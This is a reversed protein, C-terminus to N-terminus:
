RDAAAPPPGAPARDPQNALGIGRALARAMGFGHKTDPLLYQGETWENWCGITVVPPVGPRQNLYAMAARTLAEFAAPTEDVVIATGPWRQRSPTEGRPTQICRPTNDWGPNISPFCPLSTSADAEPWVRTVVDAAVTGYDLLEEDDPRRDAAMALSTYLGCSDFGLDAARPFADYSAHSAHFHIGPHGLKRAFARLEDLLTRTGDEDFTRLLRPLDWIVLVPRDDLRWYRPDHFYRAICYTLSRWIEAPTDPSAYLWERAGRGVTGFMAQRDDFPPLGTTPYWTFWPHNVWMVAFRVRERGSARLFGDELAEHLAPEGGYWYWDHIFVDVGSAVALDVYKEWTVPDREDLDGLMPTRPQHHGEFWPRTGRMLVYETWGPGYVRDNLASRHYHPFTYCAVTLGEPRFVLSPDVLRDLDDPLRASRGATTM